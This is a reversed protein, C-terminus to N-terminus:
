NKAWFTEADKPDLFILRKSKGVQTLATAHQAFFGLLEADSIPQLPHAHDTSFAINGSSHSHITVTEANRTKLFATPPLLATKLSPTSGKATAIMPTTPSKANVPPTRVAISRLRNGPAFVLIAAAVITAALASIGAARALNLRFRRRRANGKAEAVVQNALRERFAAYNGERLVDELLTPKM